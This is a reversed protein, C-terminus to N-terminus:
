DVITSTIKVRDADDRQESSSKVAMNKWNGASGSFFGIFVNYPGKPHGGGGATVEFTDVIYDGPMWSGTACLASIPDHDAGIRTSANVPDIHVLTKWAGGVASLIKYYLTMKFRGGREVRKPMDWGLLQIKNDWIITGKPRAGIKKPEHHLIVKALSNKDTTGDVRNSFLLNKSNRDEVVFYPKDGMERHLTCLDTRPMIAFVRADTRQLSKVIEPRTQVLQPKQPTYFLPAQGLDGMILLPDRSQGDAGPAGRLEHYTDFMTKSSLHTAIKPHWGFTWFAGLIITAAIAVAGSINAVLRLEKRLFGDGSRWVSVALAFGLGVLMALVFLGLKVKTATPYTVIDTGTLLSSLKDPFSQIDKGLDLVGLFFYLGILIGAAPMARQDGKQRGALLSDIWVGVAVAIAPFGSYITFGVKRQFAENAIWAGGAWALAIGGLLRRKPDDDRLLFFVAVPALVGWPFTGYGIQEFTSDYIFRLDDEPRWIAGLLSSYCGDPVIASGLMQRAPPTIGAIPDKLEYLQYTLAGVLGVAVITAITAPVHELWPRRKVLSIGLPVGLGGAAAVAGFPVVLGLLAGGAYFGIVTGLALAVTSTLLDLGFLVSGPRAPRGLSFLGYVILAAGCATGIESTLMRSQLGLLPMALVVACTVLAARPGAARLAIGVTALVTLLGLLALPLKRGTDSDALRDRGAVIARRTLSRADADAPVTRDCKAQGPKTPAAAPEPKAPVSEHPAIRDSLQREQPEILGPRGLGPLLVLVALVFCTALAIPWKQTWASITRLFTM